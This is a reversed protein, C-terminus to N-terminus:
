HDDVKQDNTFYAPVKVLRYKNTWMQTSVLLVENRKKFFLSNGEIQTLTWGNNSMLLEISKNVEESNRM